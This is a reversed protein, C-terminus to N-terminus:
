NAEQNIYVIVNHQFYAWKERGPGLLRANYHTGVLQKVWIVVSEPHEKFEQGVLVQWFPIPTM